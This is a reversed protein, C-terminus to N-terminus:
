EPMKKKNLYSFAKELEGSFNVLSVSVTYGNLLSKSECIDFIVKKGFM